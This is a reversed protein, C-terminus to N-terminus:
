SKNTQKILTRHNGSWSQSDSGAVLIDKVLEQKRVGKNTREPVPGELSKLTRQFVAHYRNLTGPSKTIIEGAKVLPWVCFALNLVRVGGQWTLGM